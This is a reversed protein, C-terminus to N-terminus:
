HVYKTEDPALASGSGTSELKCEASEGENQAAADVIGEWAFVAVPLARSGAAVDRQVAALADLYLQRLRERMRVRCAAFIAMWMFSGLLFQGMQNQGPIKESAGLMVLLIVVLPFYFACASLSCLIRARFISKGFQKKIPRSGVTDYWGALGSSSLQNFDMFNSM